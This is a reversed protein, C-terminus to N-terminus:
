HSTPPRFSKVTRIAEQIEADTLDHGFAPMIATGTKAKSGLRIQNELPATPVPSM